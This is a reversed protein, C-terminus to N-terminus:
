AEAKKLYMRYFNVYNGHEYSSYKIKRDNEDYAVADANYAENVLTMESAYYKEEGIMLYENSKGFASFYIGTDISSKEAKIVDDILLRFVGDYAKNLWDHVRSHHDDKAKQILLEQVKSYCLFDKLNSIITSGWYSNDTLFTYERVVTEGEHSYYDYQEWEEITIVGVKLEFNHYSHEIKIYDNLKVNYDPIQAIEEDKALEELYRASGEKYDDKYSKYTDKKFYDYIMKKVNSPCDLMADIIHLDQINVNRKM